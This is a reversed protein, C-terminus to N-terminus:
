AMEEREMEVRDIQGEVMISDGRFSRMTLERGIVSVGGESVRVRVLERGYDEISRCRRILVSKGAEIVVGDRGLMEQRIQGIWTRVRGQKM